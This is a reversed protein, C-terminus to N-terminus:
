KTSIKRFDLLNSYSYTNTKIYKLHYMSCIRWLTIELLKPPKISPLYLIINGYTYDVNIREYSLFRKSIFVEKLMKASTRRYNWWFASNYPRVRLMVSCLVKDADWCRTVNIIQKMISGSWSSIFIAYICNLIIFQHFLKNFVEM